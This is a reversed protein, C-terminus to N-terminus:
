KKASDKQPVPILNKLELGETVEQLKACFRTARKQSICQLKGMPFDQKLEYRYFGNKNPVAQVSGGEKNEDIRLSVIYGKQKAIANKDFGFFYNQPQGAIAKSQVGLIEPQEIYPLVEEWRDTYIGKKVQYLEEGILVNIMMAQMAMARTQEFQRIYVFGVISCVITMLIIVVCLGKKTFGMRQGTIQKEM